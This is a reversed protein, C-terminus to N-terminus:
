TKQVAKFPLTLQSQLAALAVFVCLQIDLIKRSVNLTPILVPPVQTSCLFLVECAIRVLHLFNFRGVIACVFASRRHGPSSVITVDWHHSCKSRNESPLSRRPPFGSIRPVRKHCPTCPLLVVPYLPRCPMRKPLIVHNYGEHFQQPKRRCIQVLFPPMRPLIGVFVSPMSNSILPSPLVTASQVLPWACCLVVNSAIKAAWFCSLSQHLLPTSKRLLTSPQPPVRKEPVCCLLQRRPPFPLSPGVLLIPPHRLLQKTRHPNQSSLQRFSTHPAPMNILIKVGLKPHPVISLFTNQPALCSNWRRQFPQSNLAPRFDSFHTFM